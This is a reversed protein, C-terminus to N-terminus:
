ASSRQRCPRAGTRNGFRFASMSGFNRASIIHFGINRSADISCTVRQKCQPFLVTGTGEKCPLLSNCHTEHSSSERRFISAVARTSLGSGVDKPEGRGTRVAYPIEIESRKAQMVPAWHFQKGLVEVVRQFELTEGGSLCVWLELSIQTSVGLRVSFKGGLACCFQPQRL